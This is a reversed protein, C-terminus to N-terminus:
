AGSTKSVRCSHEAAARNSDSAEAGADSLAVQMALGDMKTGHTIGKLKKTEQRTTTLRTEIEHTYWYKSGARTFEPDDHKVIKPQYEPNDAKGERKLCEMAEFEAWQFAKDVSSFSVITLGNVTLIGELTRWAWAKGKSEDQIQTKERAYSTAWKLASEGRLSSGMALFSEILDQRDAHSGTDLVDLQRQAVERKKEDSCKLWSKLGNRLKILAKQDLPNGKMRKVNGPGPSGHAPRPSMMEDKVKGDDTGPTAPQSGPAALTEEPVPSSAAAAPSSAAEDSAKPKAAAKRKAMPKCATQKGVTRKPAMCAVQVCTALFLLASAVSPLDFVM